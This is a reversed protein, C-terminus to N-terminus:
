VRSSRFKITKHNDFTKAIATLVVLLLSRPKLRVYALAGIRM